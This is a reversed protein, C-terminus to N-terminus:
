LRANTFRLPRYRAVFRSEHLLSPVLAKGGFVRRNVATAARAAALGAGYPVPVRFGDDDTRQLYEGVFRWVPVGDDDVVNYTEGESQPRELVFAFADACNDVYTLPLRTGTGFLVHARGVHATIGPPYENGPGWVVGPRLVTLAVQGADSARRAVREQWLKAVTYGGRAVPDAALPSREDLVGDAAGWDYVTFSSALVLRKVGATAMAALLNETGGVTSAFQEAEGGAVSAALHVVADAGDVADPLSAPWRLDARVIEVGAVAPSHESRVLARVDHGGDVLRRVLARGIFGNAGTVVVTVPRVGRRAPRRPSPQRRGGAGVVGAGARGGGVRRVHSPDAGRRGRPHRLSRRSQRVPRPGGVDRDDQGRGPQGRVLQRHGQG